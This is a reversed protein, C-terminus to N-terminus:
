TSLVTVQRAHDATCRRSRSRRPPPAAPPHRASRARLSWAGIGAGVLLALLAVTAVARGRRPNGDIDALAATSRLAEVSSAPPLPAVTQAPAVEPAIATDAGRSSVGAEAGGLIAGLEARM